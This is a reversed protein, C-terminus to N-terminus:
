RGRFARGKETVKKEYAAFHCARCCDIFFCDTGLCCRCFGRIAVVARVADMSFSSVIRRFVFIASAKVDEKGIEGM